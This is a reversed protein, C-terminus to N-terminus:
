DINNITPYINTENVNKVLINMSIDSPQANGEVDNQDIVSTNAPFYGSLDPIPELMHSYARRLFLENGGLILLVFLTSCVFVSWFRFLPWISFDQKYTMLEALTFLYVCCMVVLLIMNHFMLPLLYCPDKYLLGILCLMNLVCLFMMSLSECPVHLFISGVLYELMFTISGLIIVNWFDQLEQQEQKVKIYKQFRMALKKVSSQDDSPM